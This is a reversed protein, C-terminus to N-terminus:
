AAVEALAGSNVAPDKCFMEAVEANTWFLAAFEHAGKLTLPTVSQTIATRKFDDPDVHEDIVLALHRGDRTRWLSREQRLTAGDVFPHPTVAKRIRGLQVCNRLDNYDEYTLRPM